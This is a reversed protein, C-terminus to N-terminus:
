VRKVVRLFFHVVRFQVPVLGILALQDSLPLKSVVYDEGSLHPAEVLKCVLEDGGIMKMTVIDNEKISTDILM